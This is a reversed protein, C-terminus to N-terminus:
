AYDPVPEAVFAAAADPGISALREARFPALLPPTAGTLDAAVLEGVAPSIQFGHGCFGFAAYLGPPELRGIVPIGDPTQAEAGAWGQALGLREMAPLVAVATRWHPWIDRERPVGRVEARAPSMWGGGVMMQGSPGQKLSLNRGMATVTPRLLPPAVESLLMQLGRWRLPARIGLGALLEISWAGTALVVMGCGIRTGDALRVGIVRGHSVEPRALTALRSVLGAREAARLFAAATRAPHAQGDGETYGGAIAPTVEPVLARLRAGEVWEVAIGGAQDAAIRKRLPEIESPTEAIHLHGGREVELWADLEAELGAWRAAAIRSLAREAPHRGQSRLGGASAWTAGPSPGARGGREVLMARVGSRALHYAVSAGIVGAGLVVVDTM